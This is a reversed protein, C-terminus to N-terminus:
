TEKNERMKREVSEVAQMLAMKISLLNNSLSLAFVEVKKGMENVGTHYQQLSLSRADMSPKGNNKTVKTIEIISSVVKKAIPKAKM